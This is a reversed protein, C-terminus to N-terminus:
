IVDISIDLFCVVYFFVFFTHMDDNFYAYKKSIVFRWGIEVPSCSKTTCVGESEPDQENDSGILLTPADVEMEEIEPTFYEKKM